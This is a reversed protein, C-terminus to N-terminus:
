ILGGAFIGSLASQKSFFGPLDLLSSTHQITAILFAGYFLVLIIYSATHLHSSQPSTTGRACCLVPLEMGKKHASYCHVLFSSQIRYLWVHKREEEWISVIRKDFLPNGCLDTCEAMDLLFEKIVRLTEVEGCPRRQCYRSLEERTIVIKIASPFLNDVGEHQLCGNKVDYLNSCYLKVYILKCLWTVMCYDMNDWEFIMDSLWAM